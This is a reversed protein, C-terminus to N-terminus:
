EEVARSNNGVVVERTEGAGESEGDSTEVGEVLEGVRRVAEAPEGKFKMLFGQVKAMSFKREPIAEAFRTALEELEDDTFSPSSSASTSSSSSSSQVPPPSTHPFFQVFLQRVQAKTANDFYIQLDIRGPRILAPDLKEIHNTTMCLIRGEQAAVGDIANLLGSFTVNTAVTTSSKGQETGTLTRSVFAVDIDELLLICRGPTDVMLETLTEDTLGKNALNIVYINLRLEGALATVFSTKGTGPKGHFLLGRRYPIGRDTYWNESNMFEQADRLVMDKTDGELVVTSLPRVPKSRTRRWNGYQDAVYIITRNADKQLHHKQAVKVLSELVSRSGFTNITIREASPFAAGGGGPPIKNRERSLWIIRNRFTFFHTGPAPLFFVKRLAAYGEGTDPEVRQSPNELHDLFYRSDFEASVIIQKKVFDTLYGGLLRAAAVVAGFVALTMGGAAFENGSMGLKEMIFKTVVGLGGVQGDGPPLPGTSLARLGVPTLSSPAM